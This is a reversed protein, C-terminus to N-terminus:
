GLRKKKELLSIKIASFVIEFLALTFTLEVLFAAFSTDSLYSEEDQSTFYYPLGMVSVVFYVAAAIMLVISSKGDRGCKIAKIGIFINIALFASYVLLTLIMIAMTAFKSSIDTDANALYSDMNQRNWLTLIWIKMCQWLGFLITGAGAITLNKRYKRIQAEVSVMFLGGYILLNYM